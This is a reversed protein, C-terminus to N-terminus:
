QPPRQQIQRQLEALKAYLDDIARQQGALAAATATDLREADTLSKSMGATQLILTQMHVELRDTRREITDFRQDARDFRRNMEQRLDSVNGIMADMAHDLAQTFAQTFAAIAEILDQKTAPQGDPTM